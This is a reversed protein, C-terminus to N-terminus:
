HSHICYKQLTSKGMESKLSVFVAHTREFETPVDQCLHTFRVFLAVCFETILVGGEVSKAQRLELVYIDLHTTYSYLLKRLRNKLYRNKNLDDFSDVKTTLNQLALM